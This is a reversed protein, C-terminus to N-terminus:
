LSFFAYEVYVSATNAVGYPVATDLLPVACFEGALLKILDAGGSGNRITVFNSADKNFFWAWHPATVQGLPFTTASTGILALLPGSFLAGTMNFLAATVARSIASSMVSPKYVTLSTTLTIENAM